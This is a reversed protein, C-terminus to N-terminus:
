DTMLSQEDWRRFIGWAVCKEGDGSEMASTTQTVM